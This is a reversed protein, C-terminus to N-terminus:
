KINIDSNQAMECTEYVNISSGIGKLYVIM